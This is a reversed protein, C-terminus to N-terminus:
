GAATSAGTLPPTLPSAQSRVRSPAGVRLSGRRHMAKEAIASEYNLNSAGRAVASTYESAAMAKKSLENDTFIVNPLGRSAGLRELM